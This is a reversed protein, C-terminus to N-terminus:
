GVELDQVSTSRSGVALKVLERLGLGGVLKVLEALAVIELVDVSTCGGHPSTGREVAERGVALLLLLVFRLLLELRRELVEVVAADCDLGLTM